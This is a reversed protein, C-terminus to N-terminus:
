LANLRCVLSYSLVHVPCLFSFSLINFLCSLFLMTLFSFSLFTFVPFSLFALSLFPCSYYYLGDVPCCLFSVTPISFPCSFISLDQVPCSILSLRQFTLFSLFRVSLFSYPFTLFPWYSLALCSLLPWFTSLVPSFLLTYSMGVFISCYLPFPCFQAPFNSICCFLVFLFPCFLITCLLGVFLLVNCKLLSQSIDEFCQPSVYFFDLGHIMPGFHTKVMFFLTSFKRFQKTVKFHLLLSQCIVQITIRINRLFRFWIAVYSQIIPSSDPFFRSDNIEHCQGNLNEREIFIKTKKLLLYVNNKIWFFRWANRNKTWRTESPLM